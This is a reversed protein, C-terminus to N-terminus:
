NDVFSLVDPKDEFYDESIVSICNESVDFIVCICQQTEDGYFCIVLRNHGDVNQVWYWERVGGNYEFYYRQLDYSADGYIIETSITVTSSGIQLDTGSREVQAVMLGDGPLYEPNFFDAYDKYKICLFHNQGFDGASIIFVFADATLYWEDTIEGYADMLEELTVNRKEYEGMDPYWENRIYDTIFYDFISINVIM